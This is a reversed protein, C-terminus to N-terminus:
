LATASRRALSVVVVTYYYTIGSPANSVIATTDTGLVDVHQTYNGSSTGYYYVRYGDIDPSSPSAQWALTLGASAAADQRFLGTFLLLAAAFAARHLIRSRIVAFRM